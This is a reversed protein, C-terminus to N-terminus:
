TEFGDSHLPVIPVLYLPASVLATATPLSLHPVVRQASRFDVPNTFSTGLHSMQLVPLRHPCAQHPSPLVGVGPHSTGLPCAASQFPYTAEPIRTSPANLPQRGSAPKPKSFKRRYYGRTGRHCTSRVFEGYKM